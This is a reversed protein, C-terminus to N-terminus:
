KLVKALAARVSNTLAPVGHADLQTAHRLGNICLEGRGDSGWSEWRIAGAILGRLLLTHDRGVDMMKAMLCTQPELDDLKRAIAKTDRDVQRKFADAAHVQKELAKVRAKLKQTDTTPM